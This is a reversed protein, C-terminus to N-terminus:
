AKKKFFNFRKKKVQEEYYGGYGYGYGYGKRGIKVGNLILNLNKIGQVSVLEDVRGMFHRKSYNAKFVYIPVDAMALVQVGDSVLGVPPNDIIITDYSSKLEEIIRDFNDSLILESPNPPIPGATIVDLGDLQTSQVGHKTEVQGVLLNSMGVENTLGLGLHVKPKRLDLDILVTRKGSLAIIGALNLSVFTKGEGSVSSSVAIIRAEKSVFSINTRIARLAEAVVSKPAEAVMLQSYTMAQKTLPVQGLIGVREPLMNELDTLENIENYGVYRLFLLAFSLVFALFLSGSYIMGRKPSIPVGSTNPSNLIKSQSTYGANSISYVVKKETLLSYYKQNLDQLNQLRSLEMRKEPIQYYQSEVQLVKGRLIEMKELIREELTSIVRHIAEVRAEIRIDIREIAKNDATVSYLMDERREMLEHLSEVQTQLNGQFSQGLLEPIIKYVELRNSSVSIKEAVMQLTRLEDELKFTEQQLQSLQSSLSSSLNQADPLNERRQFEMISDKSNRLERSLSDLQVEIFRLINAASEKKLSEDHDFFSQAVAGIIDKSLVANNSKHKIAITKAEVDVPNVELGSLFRRALSSPNNFEFYLQNKKLEERFLDERPVKFSFDFHQNQVRQGSQVLESYEIGGFHYVLLYGGGNQKVWIPVHCLASDHLHFPTVHFSSQHYREETLVDGKSFYSVNLNLREIAKDFLYQSRLLQIERSISRRNNIHDIGIVDSAQDENFVQILMSAEYVPKSYRLYVYALSFAIGFILIFFVFSRKLVTALIAPNFEKNVFLTKEKRVPM